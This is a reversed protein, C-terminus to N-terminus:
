IRPLLPQVNIIHAQKKYKKRLSKYLHQKKKNAKYLDMNREQLDLSLESLEHLADCMLGLDMMFETSTIKKKLGEYTPRCKDSASRTPDNSAKEFHKVLAEYINGM